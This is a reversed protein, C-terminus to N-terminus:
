VLGRWRLRFTWCRRSTRIAAKKVCEENIEDFRVPHVKKPPDVLLMEPSASKKDPHKIQLKELTNKTLPLTGNHMNESLLKIAGTVNGKEMERVFRKSIELISIKRKSKTLQEQITQAEEFLEILNKDQWLKLRRELANVHNKTKSNRSPKQLLLSPMIMVAKM